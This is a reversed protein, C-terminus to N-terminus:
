NGLTQPSSSILITYNLTHSHWTLPPHIIIFFLKIWLTHSIALHTAPTCSIFFLKVLLTHTLALQTAPTCNIFLKKVLFCTGEGLHTAPTDTDFFYIYVVTHTHWRLPPHVPLTLTQTIFFFPRSGPSQVSHTCLGLLLGFFFFCCTIHTHSGPSHRTYLQYLIKKVLFCM